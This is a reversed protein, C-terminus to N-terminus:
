PNYSVSYNNEIFEKCAWLGNEVHNLVIVYSNMYPHWILTM